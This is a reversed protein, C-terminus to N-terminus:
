RNSKELRNVAAVLRILILKSMLVRINGTGVQGARALHDCRFSSAAKCAVLRTVARKILAKKM